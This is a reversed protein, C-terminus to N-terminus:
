RRLFDKTTRVGHDIVADYIAQSTISKRYEPHSWVDTKIRLIATRQEPTMKQGINQCHALREACTAQDMVWLDIKWGGANLAGTRIGCYLGIIGETAPFNRHDTFSIKWVPFLETIRGGLECFRAMSLDPAEIYIDLDRWTMLSMSYSGSVHARGYNSVLALLGHAHLIADAEAKLARQNEDPQDPTM